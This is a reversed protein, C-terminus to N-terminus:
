CHLYQLRASLWWNSWWQAQLHGSVWYHQAMLLCLTIVFNFTIEFLFTAILSKFYMRTSWFKKKIHIILYGSIHCCKTPQFFTNQALYWLLNNRLNWNLFFDINTRTITQLRGPSLDHSNYTVWNMWGWIEDGGLATYICADTFRTLMPKSLPKDGIQRWAM